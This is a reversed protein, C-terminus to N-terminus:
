PLEEIHHGTAKVLGRIKIDDMPKKQLEVRLVKDCDELDFSPKSDPIYLRIKDLIDQAKSREMVNTRYVKINSLNMQDYSM